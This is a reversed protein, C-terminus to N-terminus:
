SLQRYTPADDVTSAPFLLTPTLTPLSFGLCYDWMPGGSFSISHRQRRTKLFAFNPAWPGAEEMGLAVQM